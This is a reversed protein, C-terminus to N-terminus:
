KVVKAIINVVPLINELGANPLSIYKSHITDNWGKDYQIPNKGTYNRMVYDRLSKGSHDKTVKEGYANGKAIATWVSYGMGRSENYPKGGNDIFKGTNLTNVLQDMDMFIHLMDHGSGSRNLQKISNIDICACLYAVNPSYQLDLLQIFLKRRVPFETFQRIGILAGAVLNMNANVNMRIGHNVMEPTFREAFADKFISENIFWSFCRIIDEKDQGDYNYKFSNFLETPVADKPLGNDNYTGWTIAAHCPAGQNFRRKGNSFEIAFACVGVKNFKKNLENGLSVVKPKVDPLDFSTEKFRQMLGELYVYGNVRKRLRYANGKVLVNSRNGIYKIEKLEEMIKGITQRFLYM